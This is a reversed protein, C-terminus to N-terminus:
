RPAPAPRRRLAWWAGVGLLLVVAGVLLPLALQPGLRAGPLTVTIVGGAALESATFRSFTRGEITDSGMSQLAPGVAAVGKGEVYVDVQGTAQDIPVELRGIDAPLSYNVTLQRLPGPALTGYVALSDGRRVVAEPSVDGEGARLQIAGRPLAMVWVPRATDTSIRATNGPNQLFLAELVDFSGDTESIRAVTVLRRVLQIPPGASSTDYVTLPELTDAPTGMVRVPVSFYGIGHWETSAFYIASTDVSRLAFRFRGAGDTRQSDLPAGGERTVRHLVAWRGALPADDRGGHVIRGVVTLGQAGAAVAPVCAM